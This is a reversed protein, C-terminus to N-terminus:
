FSFSFPLSLTISFSISPSFPFVFLLICIRPPCLLCARVVCNKIPFSSFTIDDTVRARSFRVCEDSQTAELAVRLNFLM